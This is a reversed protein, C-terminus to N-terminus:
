LLDIDKREWAQQTEQNIRTVQQNYDNLSVNTPTASRVTEKLETFRDKLFFPLTMECITGQKKTKRNILVMEHDPRIDVIYHEAPDHNQADIPTAHLAYPIAFIAAPIPYTVLDPRYHDLTWGFLWMELHGPYINKLLSSRGRVIKPNTLDSSYAFSKPNKRAHNSLLTYKIEVQVLNKPLPDLSKTTLKRECFLAAPAILDYPQVKDGRSYINYIKEFLPHAIYHTTKGKLFPVGIMILESISLDKPEADHCKAMMLAVDGGYSYGWIRLLPKLGQARLEDTLKLLANYCDQGAREYEKISHLGSWGFTYYNEAAHNPNICGLTEQLLMTLASCSDGPSLEKQIIPHLGPQQMVQFQYMYPKNRFISINHHYYSNYVDDWLVIDCLTSFHLNQEINCVGHIFINVVVEKLPPTVRDRDSAGIPSGSCSYTYLLTFFVIKKIPMM